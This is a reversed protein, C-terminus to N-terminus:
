KLRHCGDPKCVNILRWFLREWKRTPAAWYGYVAHYYVRDVKEAPTM